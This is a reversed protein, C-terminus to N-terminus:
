RTEGEAELRELYPGSQWLTIAQALGELREAYESAAEAEGRRMGAGYLTRLVMGPPLSKIGKMLENEEAAAHEAEERADIAAESLLGQARRLIAAAQTETPTDTNRKMM